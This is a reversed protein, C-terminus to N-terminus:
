WAMLKCLDGAGRLVTWPPASMPTKGPGRPATKGPRLQAALFHGWLDLISWKQGHMNEGGSDGRQAERPAGGGRVGSRARSAATYLAVATYVATATYVAASATTYPRGQRGYVSPRVLVRMSYPRGSVPM